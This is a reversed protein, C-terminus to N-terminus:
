KNEKDKEKKLMKKIKGGFVKGKSKVGSYIDKALQKLEKPSVVGQNSMKQKDLKEYAAMEEATLLSEVENMREDYSPM